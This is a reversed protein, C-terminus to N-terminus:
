LRETHYLLTDYADSDGLLEKLQEVLTGCANFIKEAALSDTDYGYEGAWEEFTRANEWGAADSALNDLVGALDPKGKHASGMSYYTTLTGTEPGKGTGNGGKSITLLWHSAEWEWQAEKPDKPKAKDPREKIRQATMTLGHTTIFDALKIPEREESM